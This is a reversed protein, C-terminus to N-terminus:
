VFYFYFQGSFYFQIYLFCKVISHYGIGPAVSANGDLSNQSNGLCYAMCPCSKSRHTERPSLEFSHQGILTLFADKINQLGNPDPRSNHNQQLVGDKQAFFVRKPFGDFDIMFRRGQARGARTYAMHCRVESLENKPLLHPNQLLISNDPRDNVKRLPWPSHPGSM